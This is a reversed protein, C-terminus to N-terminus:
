ADAYVRFGFDNYRFTPDLSARATVRTFKTSHRWSGGRSVRRKGEAPGTPNMRPSREYWDKAYWDACWEHVNEAM